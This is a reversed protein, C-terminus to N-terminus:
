WPNERGCPPGTPELRRPQRSLPAPPVGSRPLGRMSVFRPFSCRVDTLRDRRPDHDLLPGDSAADSRGEQALFSALKQQRLPSPGNWPPHRPSRALRLQATPLGSVRIERPNRVESGFTKVSLLRDPSLREPLNLKLAALITAREPMPRAVRRLALQRGDRADLLIDGTQIKAM